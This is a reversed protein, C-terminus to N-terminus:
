LEWLEVDEKKLRSSICLQKSDYQNSLLDGGCKPREPWFRRWNLKRINFTVPQEKFVGVDDFRNQRIGQLLTLPGNRKVGYDVVNPNEKLLKMWPIKRFREDKGEAEYQAPGIWLSAGPKKLCWDGINSGLHLDLPETAIVCDSMVAIIAEPKQMCADAVKLCNRSTIEDAYVPNYLRGARGGKHQLFKGYMGALAIKSSWKEMSDAKADKKVKFFKDVVGRFKYVKTFPVFWWANMIEAKGGRSRLWDIRGMSVYRSWTGYPRLDDGVANTFVTPSIYTKPVTLKAYAYGYLADRPRTKSHVWYGLSLDVLNRIVSPYASVIDYRYTKPFYGAKFNEFWAGDFSRVAFELAERPVCHVPNRVMLQDLIYSELVNAPSALGRVNVGLKDFATVVYEGLGGALVADNSCYTVLDQRDYDEETFTKSDVDIKSMGLYHNANWNLSGQFFQAVDFVRVFRNGFRFQLYKSPIYELTCSPLSVRNNDILEVCVDKGLWKLMVGADFNLNFAVLICHAYDECDFFKIVDDFSRIWAHRERSDAVLFAYGNTMSETDIGIVVRSGKQKRRYTRPLEVDLVRM